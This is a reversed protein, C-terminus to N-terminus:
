SWEPCVFAGHVCLVVRSVGLVNQFCRSCKPCFNKLCILIFFLVFCFVFFSSVCFVNLVGAFVRSVGHVNPVCWLGNPCVTLVSQVCM